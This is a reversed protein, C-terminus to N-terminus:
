SASGSGQRRAFRRAGIVKAADLVVIAALATGVVAIWQEASLPVTSFIREAGPLYVVAVQLAMSGVLGLVLWRNAFSNASFVTRTESRFNFSHLLQTLVLATFLMTREEAAGTGPIQPAVLYYLVLSAGTMVAGQWLIQLQRRSSLISEDPDRPPRDM